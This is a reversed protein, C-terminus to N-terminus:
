LPQPPPSSGDTRHFDAALVAPTWKETVQLDPGDRPLSSARPKRDQRWSNWPLAAAWLGAWASWDQSCSAALAWSNVVGGTVKPDGVTIVSYGTGSSFELEAVM